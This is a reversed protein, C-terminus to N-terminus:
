LLVSFWKGFGIPGMARDGAELIHLFPVSSDLNAASFFGIMGIMALRGNNLEKNQQALKKADDYKSMTNLPDFQLGIPGGRVYHDRGAQRIEDSMEILLITFLIQRRGDDGLADWAALPSNGLSSYLDGKLNYAGPWYIGAANVVWGTFALMAVRCHKLEAARYWRITEDDAGACFGAPDFFGIPDTKGPMKTVDIEYTKERNGWPGANEYDDLGFTKAFSGLEEYTEETTPADDATADANLPSVRLGRKAPSHTIHLSTTYGVCLVAACSLTKHM